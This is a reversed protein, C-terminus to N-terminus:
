SINYISIDNSGQKNEKERRAKWLKWLLLRMNEVGTLDYLIIIYTAIATGNMIIIVM